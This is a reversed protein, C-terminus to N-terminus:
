ELERGHLFANVYDQPDITQMPLDPNTRGLMYNVMLPGLLTSLSILPAEQKLQGQTQYQAIIKMLSQMNALPTSIAEALEPHRPIETM